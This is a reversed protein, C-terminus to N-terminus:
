VVSKRDLGVHGNEGTVWQGTSTYGDWVIIAGPSPTKDRWWGNPLKSTLYNKANGSVRYGVLYQYYAMVLDVCQCGYYGDVDRWWNENGRAKIWSVAEDKTYQNAASASITGFPVISVIMVIMLLLSIIRKKM